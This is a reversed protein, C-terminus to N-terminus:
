VSVPGAFYGSVPQFLLIPEIYTCKQDEQQTRHSAAPRTEENRLHQVLIGWSTVYRPSLPTRKQLKYTHTSHVHM